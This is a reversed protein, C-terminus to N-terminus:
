QAMAIQDLLAPHCFFRQFEEDTYGVAVATETPRMPFGCAKLRKIVTTPHVGLLDGIQAASLCLNYLAIAVQDPFKKNAASRSRLKVGWTKLRNAITGESRGDIRAIDACSLGKEVYYYRITADAIPLAGGKHNYVM